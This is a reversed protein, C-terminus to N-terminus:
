ADYASSPRPHKDLEDFVYVIKLRITEIPLRRLRKCWTRRIEISSTLVSSLRILDYEAAREDYNLYRNQQNSTISKKGALPSKLKGKGAGPVEFEFDPISLNLERNEAAARVVTMSTRQHALLLEQRLSEPIQNILDMERLRAVMCRILHFMLEVPTMPKALNLQIAVLSEKQLNDSREALRGPLESLVRNVFTTKGVGRYGTLLFSGGNSHFVRDTFAALEVDRDVLPTRSAIPIPEHIFRFPEALPLAVAFRQHTRSKNDM